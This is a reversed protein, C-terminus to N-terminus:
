DRTHVMKRVVNSNEAQVSSLVPPENVAVAPREIVFLGVPIGDVASALPVVRLEPGSEGVVEVIEPPTGVVLV